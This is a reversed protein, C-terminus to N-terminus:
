RAQFTWRELIIGSRTEKEKGKRKEIRSTDLTSKGSARNWILAQNSPIDSTDLIFAVLLPPISDGQASCTSISKYIQIDAKHIDVDPIVINFQVM